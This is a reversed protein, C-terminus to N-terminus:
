AFDFVYKLSFYAGVLVFIWGTTMRAWWEVKSLINYTKGVSQASYALLFAVVIVPLATGVGYILPLLITGGSISATPLSIGIKALVPTIAGAESGMTLALLGFFWAASTPCFSVAFLIGLLLAGWIGMADVRKQMGENMMTGGSTVTILGVLFMGLLLFIPGLALHMYKQLFLSVAPISLATTTLLSALAKTCLEHDRDM